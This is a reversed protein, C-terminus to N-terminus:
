VKKGFKLNNERYWKLFTHHSVGLCDGAQRASIEKARYRMAIDHYNEPKQKIPHGFLVGKAKAAAIGEAQRQLLFSRETEAVYSLIQLVLESILAGTRDKGQRTDLLPMDLVVIDACIVKTIVRWQELVEDANRGLRDISKVFLTDGPKLKKILRKYAPRDFNKGSVMDTYIQKQTVGVEQLANIQRDIRQEKTSVRIYGYTKM